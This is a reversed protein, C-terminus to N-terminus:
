LLGKKKRRGGQVKDQTHIYNHDGALRLLSENLHYIIATHQFTSRIANISGSLLTFYPNIISVGTAFLYLFLIHVHQIYTVNPSFNISTKCMSLLIKYDM